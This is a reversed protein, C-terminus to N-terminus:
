LDVTFIVARGAAAASAYFSKLGGIAHVITAQMPAGKAGEFEGREILGARAKIAEDLMKDLAQAILRVLAATKYDISYLSSIGLPYGGFIAKAEPPAGALPFGHAGHLCYHVPFWTEDMEHLWARDWREEVVNAAWSVRAKADRRSLLEAEDDRDLAFLVGRGAM